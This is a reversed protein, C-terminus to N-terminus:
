SSLPGESLTWDVLHAGLDVHVVNHLIYNVFHEESKHFTCYSM